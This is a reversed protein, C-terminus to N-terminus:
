SAMDVAPQWPPAQAAEADAWSAPTTDLDAWAGDVFVQTWAHAHRQRVLWARELRSFELVAFGTVYRAPIGASRLLLTTATAFYQCHGAKTRELFDVLPDVGRPAPKLELTYAFSSDFYGELAAMAERPKEARLGLRAAAAGLAERLPAPVALDASSPPAGGSPGSGHRLVLEANKPGGEVVVTGLRSRKLSEAPLGEIRATGAPLALPGEGGPLSLDMLLTAADPAPTGLEWTGAAPRGDLEVFGSAGLWDRGKYVDYVANRLLSPPRGGAPNKVRLAIRGSGKLEGISGLATRSHFVDKRGASLGYAIDIAKQEVAPQFAALARYGAYGLAGALLILAPFAAARSSRPRQHWLAWAALACVCPYFSPSRTNA